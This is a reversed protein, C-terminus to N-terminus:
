RILPPRDEPKIMRPSEGMGSDDTKLPSTVPQQILLSQASLDTEMNSIVTPESIEHDDYGEDGNENNPTDPADGNVAIM